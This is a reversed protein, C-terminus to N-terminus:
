PEQWFGVIEGHEICICQIPQDPEVCYIFLLTTYRKLHCTPFVVEFCGFHLITDICTKGQMGPPPRRDVDFFKGVHLTDLFLFTWGRPLNGSKVRRPLNHSTAYPNIDLPSNIIPASPLHSNAILDNPHCHTPYHLSPNKPYLASTTRSMTTTICIICSLM